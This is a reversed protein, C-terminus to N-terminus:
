DQLGFTIMSSVNDFSDNVSLLIVYEGIIVVVFKVACRDHWLFFWLGRLLWHLVILFTLWDLFRRFLLLLLLARRLLSLSSSIEKHLLDSSSNISVELNDEASDSLSNGLKDTM